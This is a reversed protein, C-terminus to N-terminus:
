LLVRDPAPLVQDLVLRLARDLVPDPVAWMRISPSASPSPAPAPVLDLVLSVCQDLV